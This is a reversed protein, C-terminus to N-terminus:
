VQTVDHVRTKLENISDVFTRADVTLRYDWFERVLVDCPEQGQASEFVFIAKKAIYPDRRVEKLPVGISRLATATYLDQTSYEM